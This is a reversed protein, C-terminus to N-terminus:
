CPSASGSRQRVADEYIGILARTTTEPSFLRRYREHGTDARRTLAADDGAVDILAEALAAADPEIVWGSMEDVVEALGGLNTVIVGRAAALAEAAVRGFSEECISPVVVARAQALCRAVEDASLTGRWTIRPDAAAAARVADTMVGDGIVHLDADLTGRTREWAELLLAVGKYRELRGIFLFTRGGAAPRRDTPPGALAVGNYKVRVRDAAFGAQTLLWRRMSESVAITTVRRRAVARYISSSATVLASAARSSSYCGFWVGPVRWGPRCLDCAQGDRFQAGAVCLVRRNHATWLVPLDRESAAGLVSATVLPFPNHVHVVDPDAAAVAREFARRGPLSWPTWVAQRVRDLAAGAVVDDTHAEHLHVDVGADRLWAVEDRVALNEGSPVRSSYNNHVVLVRM